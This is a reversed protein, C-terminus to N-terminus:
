KVKSEEARRAGSEAADNAEVPRAQEDQASAGAGRAAKGGEAKSSRHARRSRPNPVWSSGGTTDGEVWFTGFAAAAQKVAAASAAAAAAAAEARRRWEEEKVRAARRASWAQSQGYYLLM